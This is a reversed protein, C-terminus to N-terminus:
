IVYQPTSIIRITRIKLDRCLSHLDPKGIEIRYSWGTLNAEYKDGTKTRAFGCSTLTFLKKRVRNIEGFVWITTVPKDEPSLERHIIIEPRKPITKPKNDKIIEIRNCMIGTKFPKSIVAM